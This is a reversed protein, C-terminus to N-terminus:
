RLVFCATVFTILVTKKVQALSAESPRSQTSTKSAFLESTYLSFSLPHPLSRHKLNRSATCGAVLPLRDRLCSLTRVSLWIITTVEAFDLKFIIKVHFAHFFSNPYGRFGRMQPIASVLLRSKFYNIILQRRAVYLM